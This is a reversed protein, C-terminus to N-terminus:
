RANRAASDSVMCGFVRVSRREARVAAFELQRGFTRNSRVDPSAMERTKLTQRRFVRM